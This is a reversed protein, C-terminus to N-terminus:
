LYGFAKLRRIVDREEDESYADDDRRLLRLVELTRLTREVGAGSARDAASVEVEPREPAEYGRGEGPVYVEIMARGLEARARDRGARTGPLEVVSAVGQRALLTTAVVVARAAADADLGPIGPTEADIAEVPLQRGALGARIGAAVDAVARADPGTVWVTFGPAKM